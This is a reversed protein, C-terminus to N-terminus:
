KAALMCAQYCLKIENTPLNCPCRLLDPQDPMGPLRRMLTKFSIADGVRQRSALLGRITQVSGHGCLHSPGSLQPSRLIFLNQAHHKCAHLYTDMLPKLRGPFGCSPAVCKFRDYNEKTNLRITSRAVGASFTYGPITTVNEPGFYSWSGDWLMLDLQKSKKSCFSKNDPRGLRMRLSEWLESACSGVLGTTQLPVQVLLQCITWQSAIVNLHFHNATCETREAWTIVTDGM